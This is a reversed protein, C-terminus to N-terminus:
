QLRRALRERPPLSLLSATPHDVPEGPLAGSRPAGSRGLALARARQRALAVAACPALITVVELGFLIGVGLSPRTVLWVAALAGGGALISAALSRSFRRM